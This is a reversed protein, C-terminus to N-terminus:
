LNEYSMRLKMYEIGLDSLKFIIVKSIPAYEGIILYGDTLDKQFDEMRESGFGVFGIIDELARQLPDHYNMRHRVWQEVRKNNFSDRVETRM